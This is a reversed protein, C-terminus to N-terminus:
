AGGQLARAAAALTRDRTWPDGREFAHESLLPLPMGASSSCALPERAPWGGGRLVHSSGRAPGRPDKATGRELQERYYTRSYWDSVWEVANGHLDFLGWANPELLAVKAARGGSRM